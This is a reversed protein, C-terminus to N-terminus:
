FLTYIFPAVLPSSAAVVLLSGITLLVVVLPMLYWHGRKVFAVFLEAITGLKRGMKYLVFGIVVVVFLVPVIAAYQQPLIGILGKLGFFIGFVMLLMAGVKFPAQWAPEDRYTGIYLASLAALLVGFVKYRTPIGEDVPAAPEPFTGAQRRSHEPPFWNGRELEDALFNALAVNGAPNLHIDKEYYLPTAPTTAARLASRPDLTTIGLEEALALYTEVPKEPDWAAPPINGLHRQKAERAAPDFAEKSPIPVMILEAGLSRCEERLALLAGKNHAITEALFPPEDVLLPAYEKFLSHGSPHQWKYQEVVDPALWRTLAFRLRWDAADPDVLTRQELKGEPTFRPKDARMYRTEGAWFIDNEYPFILVLDPDFAAGHELLWAVEQDISWAETGANIVDVNRGESQWLGELQDVFLEHRELTYGLTFSDGLMLVRFTGEPKAPDSMPDDRLGLENIRYSVDFESTRRKGTSSPKKSWGLQPDFSNITKPPGKGLLRLGGELVAFGIFLSILISLLVNIARM